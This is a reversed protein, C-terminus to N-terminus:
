QLYTKKSSRGILSTPAKLSHFPLKKVVVCQKKHPKQSHIQPKENRDRNWRSETGGRAEQPKWIGCKAVQGSFYVGFLFAGLFPKYPKRHTHLLPLLEVGGGWGQESQANGGSGNKERGAYEGGPTPTVWLLTLIKGGFVGSYNGTLTM